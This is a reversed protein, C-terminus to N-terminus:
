ALSEQIPRVLDSRAQQRRDLYCAPGREFEGLRTQALTLFSQNNQRLADASLSAFADRLTLEARELLAGRDAAARREAALREELRAVRSRGGLWATLAGALAALVLAFLFHPLNM